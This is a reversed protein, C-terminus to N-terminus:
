RWSIIRLRIVSSVHMRSRIVINYDESNQLVEGWFALFPMESAGFKLIEGPLM